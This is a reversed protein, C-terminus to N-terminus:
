EDIAIEEISSTDVGKGLWIKQFSLEIPADEIGWGWCVLNQMRPQPAFRGNKAFQTFGQLAGNCYLAASDTQTTFAHHLHGIFILRSTYPKSSFWEATARMYDEVGYWPVRQSIRVHDGHSLVMVLGSISVMLHEDDEAIRWEVVDKTAEQLWLYGAMDWNSNPHIASWKDGTRGHNGRVAFVRVKPVIEALARLLKGAIQTFVAVQRHAAYLLSLHQKPYIGDGHMLDGLFLINLARVKVPADKVCRAVKDILDDVMMRLMDEDYKGLSYAYGDGIHWDSLQLFFECFSDGDHRFVPQVIKDQSVLRIAEKASERQLIHWDRLRNNDDELRKITAMLENDLSTSNMVMINHDDTGCKRQLFHLGMVQLKVNYRARGVKTAHRYLWMEITNRKLTLGADKFLGMVEKVTYVGEVPWEQVNALVLPVNDSM